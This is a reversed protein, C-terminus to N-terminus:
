LGLEKIQKKVKAADSKLKQQPTVVQVEIPGQIKTVPRKRSLLEKLTIHSERLKACHEQLNDVNEEAKDVKDSFCTVKMGLEQIKLNNSAVTNINSSILSELEKVKTELTKVQEQTKHFATTEKQNYVWIAAFMTACCAVFILIVSMMEDGKKLLKM